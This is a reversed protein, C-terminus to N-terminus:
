DGWDLGLDAEENGRVAAETAEALERMAGKEEEGLIMEGLRYPHEADKADRQPRRVGLTAQLAEERAPGRLRDISRLLDKIGPHGELAARVAPSTAIAEYQRTQLAKPDDRKLPDPYASEEPVYPWKLSTLPRLTKMEDDNPLHSQSHGEGPELTFNEPEM